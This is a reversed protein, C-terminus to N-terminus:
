HQHETWNKIAERVACRPIGLALEPGLLSMDLARRGLREAEENGTIGCHGAVRVHTVENVSALASLADLCEAAQSDSFILIRNHKILEEYIKVYVNHFPM